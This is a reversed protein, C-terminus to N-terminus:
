KPRYILDTNINLSIPIEEWKDLYRMIEQHIKDDIARFWLKYYFKLNTNERRYSPRSSIVFPNATATIVWKLWVSHSIEVLQQILKTWTWKQYSIIMDIHLAEDKLHYELKGHERHTHVDCISIVWNSYDLCYELDDIIEKKIDVNNKSLQSKTKETINSLKTSQRIKSIINRFDISKM